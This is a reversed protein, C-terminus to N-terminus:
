NELRSEEAQVLPKALNSAALELECFLPSLDGRRVSIDRIMVELLLLWADVCSRVWFSLPAGVYIAEIEKRAFTDFVERGKAEMSTVSSAKEEVVADTAIDALREVSKRAIVSAGEDGLSKFAKEFM